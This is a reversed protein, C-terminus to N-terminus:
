LILRGLTKRYSKLCSRLFIWLWNRGTSSHFKRKSVPLKAWIVELKTRIFCLWLTKFCMPRFVHSTWRKEAKTSSQAKHQCKYACIKGLYFLRQCSKAATLFHKHTPRLTAMISGSFFVPSEVGRRFCM